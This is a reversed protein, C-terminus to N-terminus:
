LHNRLINKDLPCSSEGLQIAREKEAMNVLEEQIEELLPRLFYHLTDVVPRPDETGELASNCTDLLSISHELSDLISGNFLTMNNIM